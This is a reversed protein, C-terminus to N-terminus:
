RRYSLVLSIQNQTFDDASYDGVNNWHRATLELQIRRTLQRRVGAEVGGFLNAGAKWTENNTRTLFVAVSAATREGFRRELDIRGTTETFDNGAIDATNRQDFGLRLTTGDAIRYRVNAEGIFRNKAEDDFFLRSYGAAADFDISGWWQTSMGIVLAFDGFDSASSDDFSRVRINARVFGSITDTVPTHFESLFAGEWFDARFDDDVVGAGVDAAFSESTLRTAQLVMSLEREASREEWVRLSTSLRNTQVLNASHDLPKGLEVPTPVYADSVRVSVGPGIGIEAFGGLRLFVDNPSSGDVYRRVDAGLDAGMHLWRGQLGLELRPFFFTGIDDSGGKRLDVNDDAIATVRLSPHASLRYESPEASATRAVSAGVALAIPWALSAVSLLRRRKM